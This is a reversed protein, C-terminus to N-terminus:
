QGQFEYAGMDVRPTGDGNGDVIRWNGDLDTNTLIQFGPALPDYDIYNNGADVCPSGSSLRLNGGLSDVFKPDSFINGSGSFIDVVRLCSTRVSAAGGTGRRVNWGCSDWLISNEVWVSGHDVNITSYYSMGRSLNSVCTSGILYLAKDQITGTMNIAGGCTYNATSENRSFVSQVIRVKLPGDSATAGFDHILLGGAGSVSTNDLFETRSITATAPRGIVMAGGYNSSNNWAFTCSEISCKANEVFLGGGGSNGTTATVTNEYFQCNTLSLTGAGCYIGGGGIVSDNQLFLCDTIQMNKNATSIYLAGGYGLIPSMGAHNARFLLNKLQPNGSCSM